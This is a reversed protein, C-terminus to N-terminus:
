GSLTWRLDSSPCRSRKLSPSRWREELWKRSDIIKNRGSLLFICLTSLWLLHWRKSDSQVGPVILQTGIGLDANTLLVSVREFPYNGKEITPGITFMTFFYCWISGLKEWSSELLWYIKVASPLFQYFCRSILVLLLVLIDFFISHKIKVMIKEPAIKIVCLQLLKERDMFYTKNTRM